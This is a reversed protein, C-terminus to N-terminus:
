ALARQIQEFLVGVQFPKELVELVELDDLRQRVQEPPLGSMVIAKVNPHVERVARLADAGDHGQDLLWDVLVLTPQFEVAVQVAEPISEVCRVVYGEQALFRAILERLEMEDDIVLIREGQRITSAPARETRGLLAGISPAGVAQQSSERAAPECPVIVCFTAGRGVGPSTARISGGHLEVLHRTIALGLGLGNRKAKKPDDPSRFREFVLPLLERDIGCGTDRVRIEVELPRPEVTVEVEGGRPTFQVANSLLNWWVQQLRRADGTVSTAGPPITRRIGVGKAEAIPQISQITTDILSTLDVGPEPDLMLRRSLIQNMDLLNELLRGQLTANRDIIEVAREAEARSATGQRLIRSWGLIAQLPSRLEHSFASLLEDKASSTADADHRARREAALLQECEELARRLRAESEITSPRLHPM